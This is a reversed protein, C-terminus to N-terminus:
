PVGGSTAPICGPQVCHESYGLGGPDPLRSSHPWCPAPLWTLCPSRLAPLCPPCFVRKLFGHLGVQTVTPLVVSSAILPFPSLPQKPAFASVRETVCALCVASMPLRCLFAARCPVRCHPPHVWWGGFCVSCLTLMNILMMKLVFPLM